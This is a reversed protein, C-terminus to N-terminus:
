FILYFFNNVVNPVGLSDIHGPTEYNGSKLPVNGLHYGVGKDFYTVFRSALPM